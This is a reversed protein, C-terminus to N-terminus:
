EYEHLMGRQGHTDRISCYLRCHDHTSSMKNIKFQDTMKLSMIFIHQKCSISIDQQQLLDLPMCYGISKEEMAVTICTVWDAVSTVRCGGISTVHDGSALGKPGFIASNQLNLKM